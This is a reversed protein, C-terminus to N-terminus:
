ILKLAALAKDNEVTGKKDLIDSGLKIKLYEVILEVCKDRGIRATNLTM